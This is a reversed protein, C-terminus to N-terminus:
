VNCFVCRFDVIKVKGGVDSNFCLMFSEYGFVLFEIKYECKFEVM